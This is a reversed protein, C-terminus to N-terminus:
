ELGLDPADGSLEYCRQAVPEGWSDVAFVKIIDLPRVGIEGLPKDIFRSKPGISAIFAEDWCARLDHGGCGPCATRERVMRLSSLSRFVPVKEGCAGCEFFAVVPEPMGMSVQASDLDEAAYALVDRATTSGISWASVEKIDGENLRRLAYFSHHYCDDTWRNRIRMLERNCLDLRMTEAFWTKASRGVWDREGFGVVAGDGNRSALAALGATVQIGAIVSAMMPTTPVGGVDMVRSDMHGCGIPARAANLRQGVLKPDMGCTYCRAEPDAANFLAVEGSEHNSVGLGADVWPTGVQLCAANVIMRPVDGDFTSFVVDARRFAGLGLDGISRCFPIIEVDPNLERARDAAAEAKYRGKDSPLFMPSRTLNHVEVRDIDCLLIRGFGLLALNKLVENGLAGVGGVIVTAKHVAGMPLIREIRLDREVFSESSEEESM